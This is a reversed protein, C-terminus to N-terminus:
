GKRPKDPLAAGAAGVTYVNCGRRDLRGAVWHQADLASFAGSPLGDQWKAPLTMTGIVVLGKDTLHLVHGTGKSDLVWVDIGNSVFSALDTPVRTAGLSQLKGNHWGLIEVTHQDALVIHNGALQGRDPTGTLTARDVSRPAQPNRMDLVQLHGEGLGVLYHGPKGHHQTLALLGNFPPAKIPVPKADPSTMDLVQLGQRDSIVLRAGLAGLSLPAERLTLPKDGQLGGKADRSLLTLLPGSSLAIRGGAAAVHDVPTDQTWGAPRSVVWRRMHGEFTKGDAARIDLSLEPMGDPAVPAMIRDAGGLLKQELLTGAGGSVRALGGPPLDMLDMSLWDQCLCMPQQPSPCCLPEVDRWIGQFDLNIKDMIDLARSLDNKRFCLWDGGLGYAAFDLGGIVTDRPMYGHTASRVRAAIAIQHQAGDPQTTLTLTANHWTDLTAAAKFTV